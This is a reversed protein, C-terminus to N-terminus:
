SPRSSVYRMPQHWARHFYTAIGRFADPEVPVHHDAHDVVANRFLLWMAQGESHMGWTALAPGFSEVLEVAAAFKGQLSYVEVLDIAALTQDRHMGRAEFRDVVSRLVAEAQRLDGLSRAIRGELWRLRLQTWSDPFSEYLHRSIEMLALAERAQSADNLFWALGHRACLELRPQQVSELLALAAYLLEVAQSPELHGLVNAKLILAQACRPEDGIERYLQIARDLLGAARDSQGLDLCLWAEIELLEAEAMPDGTGHELAEKKSSAPSGAPTPSRM